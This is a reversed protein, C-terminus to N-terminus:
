VSRPNALRWFQARYRTLIEEEYFFRDVQSLQDRIHHLYQGEGLYVGCHTPEDSEVRFTFSDGPQRQSRDAVERFGTREIWYSFYTRQWTGEAYEFRDRIRPADPVYIGQERHWDRLLTFCDNIGWLYERGELPGRDVADGWLLPREVSTIRNNGDVHIPVIGYTWGLKHGRERSLYSQYDADSPERVGTPHSHLFALLRDKKYARELRTTDEISLRFDTEPTPHQNTLQEFTGDTYVAVCVELPWGDRFVPLMEAWLEDGIM